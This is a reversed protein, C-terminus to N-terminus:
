FYVQVQSIRLRNESHFLLTPFRGAGNIRLTFDHPPIPVRVPCGMSKQTTRVATNSGDVNRNGSGEERLRKTDVRPSIDDPSVAVTTTHTVPEQQASITAETRQIRGIGLVCNGAADVAFAVDYAKEIEEGGSKEQAPFTIESLDIDREVANEVGEGKRNVVLSLNDPRKVVAASTVSKQTALVSNVGLDVNRERTSVIGIGKPVVVIALDDTAPDIGGSHGVSEHAALVAVKDRKIEGCRRLRNCEPSILLAIDNALVVVGVRLCM